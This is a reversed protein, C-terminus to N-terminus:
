CCDGRISFIILLIVKCFMGIRYHTVCILVSTEVQHMILTRFSSVSSISIDIGSVSTEM